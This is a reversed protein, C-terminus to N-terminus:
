DDRIARYKTEDKIYSCPHDNLFKKRTEEWKKYDLLSLGDSQIAVGCTYCAYREWIGSCGVVSKKVDHEM